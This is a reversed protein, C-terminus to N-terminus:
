KVRWVISTYMYLVCVYMYRAIDINFGVISSQLYLKDEFYASISFYWLHKIELITEISPLM